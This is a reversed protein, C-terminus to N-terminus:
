LHPRSQLESTHEESRWPMSSAVADGSWSKATQLVLAGPEVPEVPVSCAACALSITADASPSRVQCLRATACIGPVAHDAAAVGSPADSNMAVLVPRYPEASPPADHRSIM